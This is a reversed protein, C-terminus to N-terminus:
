KDLAALKGEAGALLRSLRQRALLAHRAEDDFASLRMLERWWKAGYKRPLERGRFFDAYIAYDADYQTREGPTLDVRLRETRYEALQQGVLEDLRKEYIIPGILQDIRWRGEEQEHAEPYTATLGLRCTAPSM